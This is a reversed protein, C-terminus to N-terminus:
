SNSNAYFQGFVDGTDGSGATGAGDSVVVLDGQSDVAVSPNDAGNLQFQQLPNGAADFTDLAPAGSTDCALVFAGGAQVAVSVMGSYPQAQFDVVWEGTTGDLHVVPAIAEVISGLTGGASVPRAMLAWASSTSGPADPVMDGWAVVFDGAADMGVSSWEQVQTTNQNLQIVGGLAKGASTYRQANITYTMSGSHAEKVDGWVVVSNSQADMAISANNESSNPTVVKIPSGLATDSTATDSYRQDYWTLSSPNSGYLVDFGNDNMAVSQAFDHGSAVSLQAGIPAGSASYLQAFTSYRTNGFGTPQADWVVVFEGSTPARAVLLSSQDGGNINGPTVAILTEGGTPALDYNGVSSDFTKTYRQFMLDWSGTDQGSSNVQQSAWVAVTDGASDMAVSQSGRTGFSEPKTEQTGQTTTNVMFQPGSPAVSLLQRDELRDISLRRRKLPRRRSTHKSPQATKKRSFGFLM